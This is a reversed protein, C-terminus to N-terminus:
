FLIERCLWHTGYTFAEGRHVAGAKEYVRIAPLNDRSVLIRMGDFGKEAATRCLHKMMMGAIGQGHYACAVGIRMLDCPKGSQWPIGLTDHEAWYRITAAAALKHEPDRLTYLGGNAIDDATHEKAPYDETWACYPSGALAHLFAFIEETETTGALSFILKEAEM